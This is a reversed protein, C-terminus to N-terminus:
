GAVNVGIVCSTETASQPNGTFTHRTKATMLMKDSSPLSPAAWVRTAQRMMNKFRSKKVLSVHTLTAGSAYVGSANLDRRVFPSTAVDIGFVPPCQGTVNSALGGYAFATFLEPIAGTILKTKVVNPVIWLLDDVEDNLDGMTLLIGEFLSKSVSDGQHNYVSGNASNALAIKRVGNFAKQFKCANLALAAIDSDQHSNGRPSGTIDGNIICREFSRKTAELVDRRLKEMYAPASDSLLDETIEVHVVNNRATVTIGDSTGSQASFTATDGEEQGDLFGFSAPISMTTNDMPLTDFKDGLLYPISYEEFYFRSQITPIWAAFDTINYAKLMPALRKYAETEFMMGANVNASKNRIQAEIECDSVLKKMHFLRKRTEEPMHGVDKKSGFNLPMVLDDNKNSVSKGFIKGFTDAGAMKCFDLDAEFVPKGIHAPTQKSEIVGDLGKKIGDLIDKVPDSM